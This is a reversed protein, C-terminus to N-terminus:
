AARFVALLDSLAMTKNKLVAREAKLDDMTTTKEAGGILCAAALSLARHCEQEVKERVVRNVSLMEMM